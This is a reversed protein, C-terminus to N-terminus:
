FNFALGAQITRPSQALFLTQGDASLFPRYGQALLNTIDVTANLGAPLINGLRIAQRIYCSLYAQDSFAAYPDVATVLRSPQLRYAARVSTGSRVVRGKLAVTASQAFEPTLGGRAASSASSLTAGAPGSSSLAAGTSYELAMWMSPTLPETLVINLGQTKYGSSLFRFDGTSSDAIVGDPNSGAAGSDVARAFAAPSLDGGGSVIVRSMSDRYYAAQLVRPGVKRGVSLEQHVGSDTQLRGQYVMAVPLPQEAGDLGAYSQLDQSTAMRYGVTWDTAPRVTLKLFPRSASTINSAHLVYITGGAEVDVLDGLRMKQASSLQMVQLGSFGGSRSSGVMEPHSHYGIATRSAGAFGLQREYVTTADMSPASVSTGRTTGVDARLMLAAGDDLVRDLSFVNHVGAEGFGGQGDTVAAGARTPPRTREAVSSSITLVDGDENWRLIPRNAASRLTWRWDDNPEDARRREAPLWAATDFLTSLTLNVIAQAGSRLELNGHLAPVFLAASARVEYKGPVLHAILYRGNLDTFATGVMASDAALIQVLAGMQAVGQTDRVVGSVAAGSPGAARGTASTILTLALLVIKM